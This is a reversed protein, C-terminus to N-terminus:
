SPADLVPAPQPSCCADKGYYKVQHHQHQRWITGSLGPQAAHNRGMRTLLVLASAETYLINDESSVPTYQYSTLHTCSYPM